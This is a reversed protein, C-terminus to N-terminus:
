LGQGSRGVWRALPLHGRGILAMVLLHRLRPATCFSSLHYILARPDPFGDDWHTCHNWQWPLPRCVAPNLENVWYQVYDQDAIMHRGVRHPALRGQLHELAWHVLQQLAERTALMVGTNYYRFDGGHGASEPVGFWSLTHERYHANLATRDTTSGRVQPQEVLGLGSGALAVLVMADSIPRGVVADADLVLLFRHPMARLCADM